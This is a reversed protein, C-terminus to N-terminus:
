PSKGQFSQRDRVAQRKLGSTSKVLGIARVRTSESGMQSDFLSGDIRTVQGGARQQKRRYVIDEEAM